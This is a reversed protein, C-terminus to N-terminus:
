HTLTCATHVQFIPRGETSDTLQVATIYHLTIYHLTLVTDSVSSNSTVTESSFQTRETKSNKYKIISVFNYIRKIQRKRKREKGNSHKIKDKM